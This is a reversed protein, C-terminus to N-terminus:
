CSPRPLKSSRDIQEDIVALEADLAHVRRALIVAATKTATCRSM